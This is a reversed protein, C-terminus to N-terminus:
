LGQACLTRVQVVLQTGAQQRTAAIPADGRGERGQGGPALEGLEVGPLPRFRQAVADTRDAAMCDRPQVIGCAQGIRRCVQRLHVEAEEVVVLAVQEADAVVDVLAAQIGAVVVQEGGLRPQAGEDRYGLAM